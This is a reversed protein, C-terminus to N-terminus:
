GVEVGVGTDGGRRVPVREGETEAVSVGARVRARGGDIEEPRAGGARLRQVSLMM